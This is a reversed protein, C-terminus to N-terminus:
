ESCNGWNGQPKDSRGGSEEQCAKPGCRGVGSGDAFGLLLIDSGTRNHQSLFTRLRLVNVRALNDLQRDADATPDIEQSM